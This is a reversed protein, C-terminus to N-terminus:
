FKYTVKGTTVGEGTTDVSYGVGLEVKEAIDFTASVTAMGVGGDYKKVPTSYEKTVDLVTFEDRWDDVNMLEKKWGLDMALKLSSKDTLKMKQDVTAKVYLENSVNKSKDVKANNWKGGDITKIGGDEEFEEHGFVTTNLGAILSLKNKSTFDIDKTLQNKMSVSYSDFDATRGVGEEENRKVKNNSYVGNVAFRYSLENELDRDFSYGIVFSNLDNKSKNVYKIKGAQYGIFINDDQVFANDQSLVLTTEELNYKITRYVDESNDKTKKYFAGLKFNNLEVVSSVGSENESTYEGSLYNKSEILKDQIDLIGQGRELIQANLNAYEKSSIDYRRFYIDGSTHQGNSAMDKGEFLIYLNDLDQSMSTYGITGKDFVRITKGTNTTIYIGNRGATEQIGETSTRTYGVLYVDENLALSSSECQAVDDPIFNEEERNWTKGNDSTSYVIRKKVENSTEPKMAMYIKGKHHFINSESSTNKFEKVISEGDKLGNKEVESKDKVVIKGTKDKIQVLTNEIVNSTEWTKGGDESYIFGSTARGNETKHNWVQIPMYITGNYSMGNGPGQLIVKYDEPLVDTKINVPEGWTRGGDESTYVYFKSNGIDQQLKKDNYYGFLFTKGSNSDHVISPDTIGNAPNKEGAENKPPEIKSEIWTNGGDNSIKVTFDMYAQTTLPKGYKDYVVRGNDGYHWGMDFKHSGFRRDVAAVITGQTTTTLAPIRYDIHDTTPKGNYQDLNQKFITMEENWGDGAMVGTALACFLTVLRLKKM